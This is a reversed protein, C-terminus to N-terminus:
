TFKREVSFTTFNLTVASRPTTEIKYICGLNNPYVNPYDPSVITGEDETFVGGCVGSYRIQLYKM